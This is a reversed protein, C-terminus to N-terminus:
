YSIALNSKSFLCFIIEKQTKRRIQGKKLPPAGYEGAVLVLLMLMIGNQSM